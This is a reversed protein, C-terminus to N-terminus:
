VHDLEHIGDYNHNLLLQEEGKKLQPKPPLNSDSM